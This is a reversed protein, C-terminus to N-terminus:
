LALQHNHKLSAMTCWEFMLPVVTSHIHPERDYLIMDIAYMPSEPTTDVDVVGCHPMLKIMATSAM